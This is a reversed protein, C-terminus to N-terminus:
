LIGYDVKLTNKMFEIANGMKTANSEAKAAPTELTVPMEFGLAIAIQLITAHKVDHTTLEKNFKCFGSKLIPNVGAQAIATPRGRAARIVLTM